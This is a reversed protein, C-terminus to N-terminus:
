LVPVSDGHWPFAYSPRNVFRQMGIDLRITTSPPLQVAFFKADIPVVKDARKREARMWRYPEDGPAERTEQEFRVDTFQHEGFAGAQITVNRTETASLNALQVGARDAALKDVLAAVDEPLGPRGRSQDFYRTTARLLGGNYVPQPSGMSMQVLGKTVVPNPPWRNDAIIREVTRTDRRMAESMEVVYQYEARLREEPWGPNQGDHYQFWAELSGSSRDGAVEVDNWDIEREGERIREILQYDKEDMSAHCVRALWQIRMPRFENWGDPTMRTPTLLQGDDRTRAMSLLLEIQSRVLDLYGFDGTLLLACEAAVTAALFANRACNRSNWGYYGGWWQGQRKEGVKGTPGVNDPIVGNNSRTREMWADTYELVWKRYKDDGTYLYANTVLGTAALNDPIDGNLVVEDFIRIIEEARKPNEYWDEELNTVVPYLNSRQAFGRPVGGPRYIPDLFMKALQLDAHFRPGTSGHMPSRIIRYKRDYNPADPDDGMYMAAYRTARRRNEPDTPEALGFDYFSQNGEGMHFWDAASALTYYENHAQPRFIPHHQPDDDRAVVDQSYFRATANWYQTAIELMRNSGGIAYLRARGSRSEYVDDLDNVSYSAGGVRSYKQAAIEAAEEMRSILGRELLAWAPPASIRTATITVMGPMSIADVPSDRGTM